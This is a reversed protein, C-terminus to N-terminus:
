VLRACNLQACTSYIFIGEFLKGADKKRRSISYKMRGNGADKKWTDNGSQSFVGNYKGNIKRNFKATSPMHKRLHRFCWIHKMMLDM